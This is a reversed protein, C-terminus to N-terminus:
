ISLDPDAKQDATLEVVCHAFQEPYKAKIWNIMEIQRNRHGRQCVGDMEHQDTARVEAAHEPNLVAALVDGEVGQAAAASAAGGGRRPTRSRSAPM